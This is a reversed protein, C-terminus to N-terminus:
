SHFLARRSTHAAGVRGESSSTRRHRWVQLDTGPVVESQSFTAGVSFDLAAATSEVPIHAAILESPVRTTGETTYWVLLNASPSARKPDIVLSASAGSGDITSSGAALVGLRGLVAYHVEVPQSM